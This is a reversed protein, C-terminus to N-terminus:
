RGGADDEAFEMSAFHMPAQGAMLVAPWVPIGTPVSAVFAANAVPAPTAEPLTALAPPLEAPQQRVYHRDAQTAIFAVAAIGAALAAFAALSPLYPRPSVRDVAASPGLAELRANLRAMFEPSPEINPLNRVLILSRRVATDMRSCRPCDNLHRRMDRMEIGSLLDDVFAVHKNRFERCDM